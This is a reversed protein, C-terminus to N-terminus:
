DLDIAALEEEDLGLYHGLEHYLTRAIEEELREKDPFQRELNRQFILIRPPLEGSARTDGREALPVGVFLGLLEPDFLVPAEDRLVAESPLPEITVVVDGLPGRFRAPLRDAASEVCARFEADGIRVPRPFVDPDMRNARVFLQDAADWEERRELVLGRVYLADPLDPASAVARASERDAAPLDLNRYHALALNARFEGDEPDLAVAREFERIAEEARDLELLAAGALHRVVPDGAGGRGMAARALGLADEACGADLADYIAELEDLDPDDDHM